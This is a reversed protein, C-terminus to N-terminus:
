RLKFDRIEKKSLQRKSVAYVGRGGYLKERALKSLGARLVADDVGLEYTYRRLGHRTKEEKVATPVVALTVEWWAGDDLLHLQRGPALERMRADRAKADAARRQQNIKKWGTFHKNRRLLGSKPDVFLKTFSEKLPKLSFRDHVWVEGDKLSTKIAVFDPIHDRVHQQVTNSPKLNACVEAWVKDWPRGVQRELFRKLPNLNENLMKFGGRRRADRKLGIKSVFLDDDREPRGRRVIGGGLRAREVIVKPMDGRM